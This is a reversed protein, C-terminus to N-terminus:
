LHAEKTFMTVMLKMHWLGQVVDSSGAEDVMGQFMSCSNMTTHQASHLLSCGTAGRSHACCQWALAAATQM